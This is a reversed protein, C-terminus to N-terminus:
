SLIWAKLNRSYGIESDDFIVRKKSFWNKKCSWTTAEQIAIVDPRLLSSEQALKEARIEFDTSKMQDWMFQAASPFDPLLQLAVGVDAGLYLNRTMVAVSRDSENGSAVAPPNVLVLSSM